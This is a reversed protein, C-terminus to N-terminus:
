FAFRSIVHSSRHSALLREYDAKDMYIYRQSDKDFAIIKDDDDTSVDANEEYECKSRSAAHMSDEVVQSEQTLLEQTQSQQNKRAESLATLVTRLVHAKLIQKIQQLSKAREENETKGKDNIDASSSKPQASLEATTSSTTSPQTTMTQTTAFTTSENKIESESSAVRELKVEKSAFKELKVDNKLYQPEETEEPEQANSTTIIDTAVELRPTKGATFTTPDDTRMTRENLEDMTRSNETTFDNRDDDSTLSTREVFDSEISNIKKDIDSLTTTAKEDDKLFKTDVENLRSNDPTSDPMTPTSDTAFHQTVDAPTASTFFCMFAVIFFKQLIM